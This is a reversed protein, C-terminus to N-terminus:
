YKIKKVNRMIESKNKQRKLLNKTEFLVLGRKIERVNIRILRFVNKKSLNYKLVTLKQGLGTKPM